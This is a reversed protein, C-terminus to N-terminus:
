ISLSMGFLGRFFSGLIASSIWLLIGFLEWSAVLSAGLSMLVVELFIWQSEGPSGLVCRLRRQDVNRARHRSPGFAVLYIYIYIYIYIYM